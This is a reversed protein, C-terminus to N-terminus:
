FLEWWPPQTPLAVQAHCINCRAELMPQQQWMMADGSQPTSGSCIIARQMCFELLFTWPSRIFMLSTLSAPPFDGALTQSGHFHTWLSCDREQLACLPHDALQLFLCMPMSLLLLGCELSM